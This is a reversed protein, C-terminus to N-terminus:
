SSASTLGIRGPDAAGSESTAPWSAAIFPAMIPAALMPWWMVPFLSGEIANFETLLLVALGLVGLAAFVSILTSRSSGAVSRWRLSIVSVACALVPLSYIVARTADEPLPLDFLLPLFLLLGGEAVWALVMGLLYRGYFARSRVGLALAAAGPLLLLLLLLGLSAVDEVYDFAFLLTTLLASIAMTFGFVAGYAVLFRKTLRPKTSM